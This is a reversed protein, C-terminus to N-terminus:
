HLLYFFVQNWAISNDAGFTKNGTSAYFLQLYDNAACDIINTFSLHQWSTAYVLDYNYQVISGNKRVQINYNDGVSLNGMSINSSFAVAYKGAVPCTFKGTSGSYHGGINWRVSSAIAYDNSIKGGNGGADTGSFYASASAQKPKTVEGNTHLHLARGQAVNFGLDSNSTGDATVTNNIASWNNGEGNYFRISYDTRHSFSLQGLGLDLNTRPSTVGAMGINGNAGIRMRENWNGDYRTTFVLGGDRNATTTFDSEALGQISAGAVNNAPGFYIGIKNNASADANLLRLSHKSGSGTSKIDVETDAVNFHSIGTAAFTSGDFTLNAEGQINKAGTVTTIQNNTSGTLVTSEYSSDILQAKTQSM